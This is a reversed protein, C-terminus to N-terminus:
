NIGKVEPILKLRFEFLCVFLCVFPLIYWYQETNKMKENCLYCKLCCTCTFDRVRLFNTESLMIKNPIVTVNKELIQRREKMSRFVNLTLVCYIILWFYNVTSHDRNLYFKFPIQQTELLFYCYWPLVGTVSVRFLFLFCNSNAPIWTIPTFKLSTLLSNSNDSNSNDPYVTDVSNM